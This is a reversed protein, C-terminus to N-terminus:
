YEPAAAKAEEGGDKQEKAALSVKAKSYLSSGFSMLASGAKKANTKTGEQLSGDKYSEVLKDKTETM